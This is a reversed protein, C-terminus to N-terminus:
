LSRSPWNSPRMMSTDRYGVAVKARVEGILRPRMGAAPTVTCSVAVPLRISCPCVWATVKGTEARYEPVDM